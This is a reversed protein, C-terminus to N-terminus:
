RQRPTTAPNQYPTETKGGEPQHRPLRELDYSQQRPVVLARDRDVQRHDDRMRRQEHSKRKAGGCHDASRKKSPGRDLLIIEFIDDLPRAVIPSGARASLIVGTGLTRSNKPKGIKTTRSAGAAIAIMM